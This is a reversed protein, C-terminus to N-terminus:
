GIQDHKQCIRSKISSELRSGVASNDQNQKNQSHGSNKQLMIDVAHRWREPCFGTELPVTAMAAHTEALTDALGDKSGDACAKYHPVAGELYSSATKEPVYKFCSQFDKASLIPTFIGQITPCWKFQQIIAQISEDEVYEHELTGDLIAKEMESDGTHSLEKGLDTYGFPTAGAHSSHEVNRAILHSEVEEKDEIKPWTTEGNNPVKVHRPRIRKLTNPKIYGRIQRGTKRWSRQATKWNEPVKVEKEVLIENEVPDFIGGEKYGPNRKELIAEAGKAEYQGRHDKANAVLDKLKQRSFNLQRIYGQVSL